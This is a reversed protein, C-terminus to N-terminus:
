WDSKELFNIREKVLDAMTSDPYNVLFEKYLRIATGKENRDDYLKAILYSSKEKAGKDAYVSNIIRVYCTVAGELNGFIDRMYSVIFMPKILNKEHYRDYIEVPSSTNVILNLM